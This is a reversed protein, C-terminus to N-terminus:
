GTPIIWHTVIHGAKDAIVPMTESIPLNGVNAAVERSTAIRPKETEKGAPNVINIPQRIQDLQDPTYMAFRLLFREVGYGTESSITGIRPIGDHIREGAWGVLDRYLDRTEEPTPMRFIATGEPHKRAAAIVKEVMDAGLVLKDLKKQGFGVISLVLRDGIGVLSHGQCKIMPFYEGRAERRQMERKLARQNRAIRIAILTTIIGLISAIFNVPDNLPKVMEWIDWVGQM